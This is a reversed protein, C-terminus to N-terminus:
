SLKEQHAILPAFVKLALEAFGCSPAHDPYPSYGPRVPVLSGFLQRCCPENGEGPMRNNGLYEERAKGYAAEELADREGGKGSLLTRAFRWSSKPFFLLPEDAGARFLETLEALHERANEVARLRIAEAGGKEGKGVVFSDLPQDGPNLACLFLHDLWAALLVRGHLKSNTVHIRGEAHRGGIEGWLSIGEGLAVEGALPMLPKQGICAAVKQLIPAVAEEIERLVPLAAKGLPLLGQGRWRRALEAGEGERALGEDLLERALQYKELEDLVVPEREALAEDREELFLGLRQELFWRAPRAWFRKLEALNLRDEQRGRPVLPAPLFFHRGAPTTLRTQVALCYEQSYSFLREASGCFYRPSFPQLPHQRCLRAWFLMRQRAVPLAPDCGPLSFSAQTTEILEEVVLSPPLPKGDRLSNGTHFLLLKERAALLAELFLYRDDHHRARDGLMPFRAMLDYSQPHQMRPFDRDNLGLICVVRFPIARMPLMGCFTIGGALFGQESQSQGLKEELLIVLEALSLPQDFGSATAENAIEALAERIKQLQWGRNSRSLFLGDLLEALLGQWKEIRLPKELRALLVFLTEAFHIFRGALTAAQGEIEGHPLVDGCFLGDGGLAYGLLLRDFGFRWTNQRERPQGNRQRHEEDIGWRIGAAEIWTRIQPLDAQEIGFRGYVEPIALVELVQNATLRGPALVLLRFFAEILEIGGGSPRDAIRYPLFRPDEVPLAFVADILPAYLAVDPLMVVIDRPELRGDGDLLALLQDQLVEVERLRSFCAHIMLSDDSDELVRGPNGAQEPGPLSLALIDNQLHHLLTAAGEQRQFFEGAPQYECGEELLRQFDRAVSGCSALLPHGSELFLDEATLGEPLRAELRSIEAPSRIEAFYAESPAFLFFHVPLNRALDNLIALYIRPLTDIGFVSVREPLLESFPIEGAALAERARVMLRAPSCCGIHEVIRQWLLPQWRESALEEGAILTSGEEWALVMEPRYVAYQDFLYALQRCLQLKKTPSGEVLYAYLSFFDPDQGCEDLLSFIVFALRERSFRQVLDGEEGITARLIRQIFQRPHPFDPNAWVGFHRSLQMSLWAAMGKSQVMICEPAFPSSLPEAAIGCLAELLAEVRNSRYLQIGEKRM